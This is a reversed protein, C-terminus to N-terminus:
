NVLFAERRARERLIVRVYYIYLSHIIACPAIKNVARRTYITISRIETPALSRMLLCSALSLSAAARREIFM